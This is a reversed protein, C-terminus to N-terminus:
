ADKLMRTDIDMVVTRQVMGDLATRLVQEQGAVGICWLAPDLYRQQAHLCEEVTVAQLRSIYTTYYDDALGYQLITWALGATQQPTENNRAFSGLMYQRANELEEADLPETSIRRLEDYITRMTDVTYENGVSTGIVTARGYRRMDPFAYAGYTYGKQERLISFLRALTFGGLASTALSLAPMDPHDFPVNPLGIRLVSQVADDKVALVATGTWLKGEEIQPDFTPHPLPGLTREIHRLMTDADFRGSVIIARPARLMREHVTRMVDADISGLSSPVGDRPRGYPHGHYSAHMSAWVALWEPDDAHMLMDAARRQRERDIEEPDFRPSTLCEAMLDLITETHVALGVGSVTTVDYSAGSSVSCGRSEVAEAFEGPTLRTTGRTLMRATFTTEGMRVDHVGGTDLGITISVLDETSSPILRVRTGNALTHAHIAPTTFRLPERSLPPTTQTM